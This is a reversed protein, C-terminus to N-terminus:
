MVCLFPLFVRLIERDFFHTKNMNKKVKIRM